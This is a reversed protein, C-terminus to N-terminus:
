IWERWVGLPLPQKVQLEAPTIPDAEKSELEELLACAADKADQSKMRQIQETTYKKM